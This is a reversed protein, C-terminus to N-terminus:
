RATQHRASEIFRRVKLPDKIGKSAEVGSVVDVMWPQVADIAEAVNTPNLGGALIVHLGDEMLARATQWDGLHGTGGYVIGGSEGTARADMLIASAGAETMELARRRLAQAEGACAAWVTLGHSKLQRVMEAREDGHLQLAAPQLVDAIHLLRDLTLNVTVAVIPCATAARIERARELSTSRPSPQHEVIVGLYDAGARAAMQADAVSTNGCIKVLVESSM